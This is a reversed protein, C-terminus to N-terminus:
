SKLLQDCLRNTFKPIFTDISENVLVYSIFFEKSWLMGLLSPYKPSYPPLKTGGSS